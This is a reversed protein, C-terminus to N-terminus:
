RLREDWCDECCRPNEEPSAAGVLRPAPSSGCFTCHTRDGEDEHFDQRACETSDPECGDKVCITCQGTVSDTTWPVSQGGCCPCRIIDVEVVVAGPGEAAESM